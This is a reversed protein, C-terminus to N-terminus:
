IGDPVGVKLSGEMKTVISDRYFGANLGNTIARYRREEGDVCRAPCTRRFVQEARVV